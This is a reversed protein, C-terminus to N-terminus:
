RNLKATMIKRASNKFSAAVLAKSRETLPFPDVELLVETTLSLEVVFTDWDLEVTTLLVTLPVGEVPLLVEELFLPLLVVVVPLAVVVLLTPLLKFEEATLWGQQEVEVEVTVTEPLLESEVLVTVALWDFSIVTVILCSALILLVTLEVAVVPLLVEASLLPLVVM